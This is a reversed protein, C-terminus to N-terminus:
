RKMRNATDANGGTPVAKEKYKYGRWVIDKQDKYVIPPPQNLEDDRYRRSVGNEFCIRITLPYDGAAYQCSVSVLPKIWGHRRPM